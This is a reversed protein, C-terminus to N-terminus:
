FLGRPFPCCRLVRTIAWRKLFTVSGQAWKLQAKINHHSFYLEAQTGPCRSLYLLSVSSLSQPKRRPTIQGWLSSPHCLNWKQWWHWRVTEEAYLAEKQNKTNEEASHPFVMSFTSTPKQTSIYHNTHEKMQEKFMLSELSKFCFHSFTYPKVPQQM